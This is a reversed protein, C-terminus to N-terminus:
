LEKPQNLYKRYAGEFVYVDSFFMSLAYIMMGITHQNQGLALVVGALFTVLMSLLLVSTAAKLDTKDRAYLGTIIQAITVMAVLVWFAWDIM